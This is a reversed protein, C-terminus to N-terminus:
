ENHIVDWLIPLLEDPIQKALHEIADDVFEVPMVSLIAMAVIGGPMSRKNIIRRLVEDLTERDTMPQNNM